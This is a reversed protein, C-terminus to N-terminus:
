YFRFHTKMLPGMLFSSNNKASMLTAACMFKRTVHLGPPGGLKAASICFHVVPQCRVDVRTNFVQVRSM